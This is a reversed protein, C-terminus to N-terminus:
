CCFRTTYHFIIKMQAGSIEHYKLHFLKERLQKIDTILIILQKHVKMAYQERSKKDIHPSRLVTYLSQKLPLRISHLKLPAVSKDERTILAKLASHSGQLHAAHRISNTRSYPTSDVPELSGQPLGGPAVSANGDERDIITDALRMAFSSEWLLGKPAEFSKLVISIKVKM